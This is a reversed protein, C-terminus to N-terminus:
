KKDEMETIKMTALNHSSCGIFGAIWNTGYCDHAENLPCNKCETIGEEVEIVFKKTAM